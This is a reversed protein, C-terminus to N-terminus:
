SCARLIRLAEPWLREFYDPSEPFLYETEDLLRQAFRVMSRAEPHRLMRADLDGLRVRDLGDADKLLATLRWHPNPPRVEGDSHKTVATTIADLDAERVGGRFLTAKLDSESELRHCAHAGHRRSVGDHTRAIDHIYVSAWLRIGEDHAGTVQVLHFAHVMVRAVHRQGHLHSRFSFVEPRPVIDRLPLAIPTTLTM